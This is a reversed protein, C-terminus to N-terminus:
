RQNILDIALHARQRAEIAELPIGAAIRGLAVLEEFLAPLPTIPRLKDARTNNNLKPNM